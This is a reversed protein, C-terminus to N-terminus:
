TGAHAGGRNRETNIEERLEALLTRIEEVSSDKRLYGAAGKELCELVTGEDAISTLMVVKVGPHTRLIAPLAKPGTQVPMSVDLLVLDPKTRAVAAVADQGNGAEAVISFGLTTVIGRLWRRCISDDEAILANM